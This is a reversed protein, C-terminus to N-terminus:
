INNILQENWSFFSNKKKKCSLLDGGLCIGSMERWNGVNGANERCEGAMERCKRGNGAMEAMDRWRGVIDMLVIELTEKQTKPVPPPPKEFIGSGRKSLIGLPPPLACLFPFDPPFLALCLLLFNTKTAQVIVDCGTM